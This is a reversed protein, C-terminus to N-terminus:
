KNYIKLWHEIMEDMLEEFTYKPKWGLETRIKTSDGKLYPLEEPRLFKPNQIVYDKYNLDLKNFVYECMQRVSHTKGTAVVWDGPENQQLMLHMARVYDYSHGWDRYSDMNGLELKDQLGLKIRVAAKVVKNTVFNSGRRPSEHNFLIGNTAHLKYARRYNRVINYGFVKSCGYPSVPNMPTTERQSNDEDVSLGFMESSSAQYFKAKPCARRYAELINLVGLANTQVTFQPIDFSIRVHSQAAINYIEDPQIDDLLRELGGQDLLDGYYTTIKKELHDVRSEQHEPTSNRRIIGHVEYGLELLYESLYSGDQGAIGTIFAKKIKM